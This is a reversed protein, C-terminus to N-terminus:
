PTLLGRVHAVLEELEPPLPERARIGDLRRLESRAEGLRGLGVLALARLAPVYAPTDLRPDLALLAQEFREGRADLMGLQLRADPEARAANVDLLARARGALRAPLAPAVALWWPEQARRPDELHREYSRELFAEMEDANARAELAAALAGLEDLALLRRRAGSSPARGAEERAHLLELEAEEFADRARLARALLRRADSRMWHGEPFRKEARAVLERAASEDEPRVAAEPQLRVQVLSWLFNVLRVDEVPLLAVACRELTALFEEAEPAHRRELQVAGELLIRATVGSEDGRVVADPLTATVRRLAPMVLAGEVEEGAAVRLLLEIDAVFKPDHRAFVTRAVLLAQDVYTRAAARDGERRTSAILGELVDFRDLPDEDLAQGGIAHARLFQARAEQDLGLALYARGLATHLAAEPGPGRAGLGDAEGALVGLLELVTLERGTAAGTNALEIAEVFARVLLDAEAREGRELRAREEAEAQGERAARLGRLTGALGLLISLALAASFLVGVGHRRVFKRAVYLPRAPVAALPRHALFRRLDEALAAASGYRGSPDAALARLALADLEGRVLGLLARPTTGREAAIETLEAGLGALCASPPRTGREIDVLLAARSTPEHPYRSTLLQYLMVGLSYVDDRTDIGTDRQALRAPSMYAPTGLGDGLPQASSSLEGALARAIGFDVVRPRAVGDRADVLVNGPKLDRHVVGKQHAHQVADCVQALLELRAPIPLRVRDCHETLALGPAYEMVFYPLGGPSVGGDFIKAIGPHDMAALAQCEAAFRAVAAPSFSGLRITKLAVLRSVPEEQQALHVTGMGGEGLVRVLRYRGIREAPAGLAPRLAPSTERADGALLARLEALLAVDTGARAVLFAERAEPPLARAEHFLAEVRQAREAASM